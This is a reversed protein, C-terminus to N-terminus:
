PFVDNLRERVLTQLPRLRPPFGPGCRNPLLLRAKAASVRATLNRRLFLLCSEQPPGVRPSCGTRPADTAGESRAGIGGSRDLGGFWGKAGEITRRDADSSNVVMV